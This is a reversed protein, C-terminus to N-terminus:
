AAKIGYLTFTSGAMFNAGSSTNLTISTIASSSRYLGVTVVVFNNADNQRILSTKNTTTNSYNQLQVIANMFTGSAANNGSLGEFDINPATTRRASSATSGTALLRTRSYLTSSDGNFTMLYTDNAAATASRAVCVLILDTYSGSISSFTVTAQASGLTTTAISEYTQGAPM